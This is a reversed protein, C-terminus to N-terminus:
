PAREFVALVARHDSVIPPLLQESVLRWARPALVYDIRRTPADAPYSPPGAFNGAFRGSEELLRLSASGPEANLDGALLLSRGQTRSLLERVQALNTEPDFSDHHVSAIWLGEGLAPIRALLTRRNNHTVWFGQRGPIDANSAQVIPWRSLIANGGVIRLFPLGFNYCEGFAYSCLGLADALEAVQDVACLSCEQVVESLCVIDPAHERLLEAVARLRARVTEVSEFDIGGRHLELKALNCAVVRVRLGSEAETGRDTVVLAIEGRALWLGNIVFLLGAALPLSAVALVIRIAIKRARSTSRGTENM